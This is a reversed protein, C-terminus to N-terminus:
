AVYEGRSPRELWGCAVFFSHSLQVTSPSAEKNIADSLRDAPIPKRDTGLRGVTQLIKLQLPLKIRDTPLPLVPRSRAADRRRPATGNSTEPSPADPEM